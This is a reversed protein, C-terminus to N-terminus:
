EGEVDKKLIKVFHDADEGAPVAVVPGSGLDSTNQAMKSREERLMDLDHTIFGHGAVPGFYSVGALSGIVSGVM